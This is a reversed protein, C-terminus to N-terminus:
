VFSGYTEFESFGNSVGPEVANIIKEIWDEGGLVM